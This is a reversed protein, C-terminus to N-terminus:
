YLLVSLRTSFLVILCQVTSHLRERRANDFLERSQEELCHFFVPAAIARRRERFHRAQIQMRYRLLRSAECRLHAFHRVAVLLSAGQARVRTQELVQDLNKQIVQVNRECAEDVKEVSAARKEADADRWLAERFHLERTGVRNLEGHLRRERREGSGEVERGKRGGGATGDRRSAHCQALVETEQFLKEVKYIYAKCKYEKLRLTDIRTFYVTSQESYM